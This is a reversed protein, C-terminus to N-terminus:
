SEPMKIEPDYRLGEFFGKFVIRIKSLKDGDSHLLVDLCNYADKGIVYAWGALGHHRYCHVDNRFLYQFRDMREAPTTALKVRTHVKMAHVVKSRTVVYGPYKKAIRGTFEYDDTWIFYDGIPCGLERIVESKVLLSVFSAMLVRIVPHNYEDPKLRHLVNTKQVNAQCYSGDTWYAVSSLYGWRDHLAKGARLLEYLATEEPLTDDDMIWVYKYGAEVAKKVGFEFGGAGGLNAGTNTYIVEPRDFEERIMGETGDTSANDILMIDCSAKVQGLLKQLCERLLDKRNYTVVIAAVQNM